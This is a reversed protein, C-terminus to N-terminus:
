HLVLQRESERESQITKLRQVLSATAPHALKRVPVGLVLQDCSTCLYDFIGAVTQAPEEILAEYTVVLHPESHLWNRWFAQYDRVAKLCNLLEDDTPEVAMQQFSQHTEDSTCHTVGTRNAIALSVAQQWVNKRELLVFRIGPFLGKIERRRLLHAGFHHCHMKTVLPDLALFDDWSTCFRSNLHEEFSHRMRDRADSSSRLEVVNCNLLHQLYTSGSRPSTLLWCRCGWPNTM